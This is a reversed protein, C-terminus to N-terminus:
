LRVRKTPHFLLDIEVGERAVLAATKQTLEDSPKEALYRCIFPTVIGDKSVRNLVLSHANSEQDFEPKLKKFVEVVRALKNNEISM